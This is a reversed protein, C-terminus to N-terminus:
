INVFYHKKMFPLDVLIESMRNIPYSNWPYREEVNEPWYEMQGTFMNWLPKMGRIYKIEEQKKIIQFYETLTKKSFNIEKEQEEGMFLPRIESSFVYTKDPDVRICMINKYYKDKLFDEGYLSKIETRYNKYDIKRKPCLYPARFFIYPHKVSRGYEIGREAMYKGSKLGEMKIQKIPIDDSFHHWILIGKKCKPKLITVLDTEHLIDSSSMFLIFQNYTKLKILKEM